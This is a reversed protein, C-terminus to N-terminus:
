PITYPIFYSSHSTCLLNYGKYSKLYYGVILILMGLSVTAVVCILKKESSNIPLKLDALIQRKRVDSTNRHFFGVPRHDLNLAQLCKLIHLYIQTGKNIGRVLVLYFKNNQMMDDVFPELLVEVNASLVEPPPVLMVVNDRLSSTLMNKWKTVEPLQNQLLRITRSTATATMLLAKCGIGSIEGSLLSMAPRFARTKSKNIGWSAVSLFLIYGM